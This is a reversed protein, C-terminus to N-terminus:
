PLWLTSLDVEVEPFPEARVLDDEAHTGIIVWRGADLQLIELTRSLPDILWLYPIQHRAYIGTKTVRDLRISGPSLIEGIWDPTM